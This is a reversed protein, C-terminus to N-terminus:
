PNYLWYKSKKPSWNKLVGIRKTTTHAFYKFIMKKLGFREFLFILDIKLVIIVKRLDSTENKNYGEKAATTSDFFM